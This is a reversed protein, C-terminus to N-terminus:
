EPYRMIAQVCCSREGEVWWKERVGDNCISSGHFVVRKGGVGAGMVGRIRCSAWM